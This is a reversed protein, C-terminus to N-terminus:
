TRGEAQEQALAFGLLSAVFAIALGSWGDWAFAGIWCAVVVFATM